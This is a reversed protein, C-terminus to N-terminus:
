TESDGEPPETSELLAALAHVNETQSRAQYAKILNRLVRAIIEESSCRLQDLRLDRVSADVHSKFQDEEVFRGGNYCDVIVLKDGSKVLSLFHGPFNLGEVALGLRHGVLIYITCLSIPIGRRHRLVYFLNSNQPNDFDKDAGRLRKREFLFQALELADPSASYQRYDEALANLLPPLESAVHHRDLFESIIGFAAELRRPGADLTKWGPWDHKLKEIAHQNLLSHLMQMQERTPPTTLESLLKDLDPGLALLEETVKERVIESDDDLLKLLHPLQSPDSM